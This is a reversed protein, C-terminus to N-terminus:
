RLGRAGEDVASPAVVLSAISSKTTRKKNRSLSFLKPGQMRHRWGTWAVLSNSQSLREDTGCWSSRCTVGGFSTTVRTTTCDGQVGM